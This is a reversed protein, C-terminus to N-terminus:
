RPAGLCIVQCPLTDAIRKLVKDIDIFLHPEDIFVRKWRMGAFASGENLVRLGPYMKSMSPSHVIVLDAPTALDRIACTKGTRRGLSLWLTGYERQFARWGMVRAMVSNEAIYLAHMKIAARVLRRFKRTGTKGM